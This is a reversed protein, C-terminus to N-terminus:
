LGTQVPSRAPWLLLVAEQVPDRRGEDEALLCLQGETRQAGKRGPSIKGATLARVQSVRSLDLRGPASISALLSVPPALELWLCSSCRVGSTVLHCFAFM